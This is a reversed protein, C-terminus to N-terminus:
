EARIIYIYINDIDSVRRANIYADSSTCYPRASTAEANISEMRVLGEKCIPQRGVVVSKLFILSGYRFIPLIEYINNWVLECVYSTESSTTKPKHPDSGRYFGIIQYLTFSPTYWSLFRLSSAQLHHSFDCIDTVRTIDPYQVQFLSCCLSQSCM